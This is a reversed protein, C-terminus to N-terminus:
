APDGIPFTSGRQSDSTMSLFLEELNSGDSERLELLAISAQLAAIGVDEPTAQVVVGDSGADSFEFNASSLARRLGAGDRSRVLTGHSKLLDSKAGQAIIQGNGIVILDDAIVEIEHLLHSSLLVTGGREAQYRLLGRMWHIGDPDLGNVPEDLILVKPDALLAHAIGLRQRMGLSYHRVRRKSEKPTLGVIELMEGVRKKPLGMTVAGLTLIERGTRGAHQASADLLVGVQTAPNPIEAFKVGGVTAEGSTPPTLGVIMRMATSKGAGNPGLFGTVAGARCTFTIDDVARFNGYSKTLNKVEIM